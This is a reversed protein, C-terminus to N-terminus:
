RDTLSNRRPRSRADKLCAGGACQAGSRLVPIFAVDVVSNGTTRAQMARAPQVGPSRSAATLASVSVRSCRSLMRASDFSGPAPATPAARSVDFAALARALWSSESDRYAPTGHVDEKAVVARGIVGGAQCDEGAVNGVVEMRLFAALQLGEQACQGPRVVHDLILETAYHRAATDGDRRAAGRRVQAPAHDRAIVLPLSDTAHQRLRPEIADAPLRLDRVDRQVGALVRALEVFSRSPKRV